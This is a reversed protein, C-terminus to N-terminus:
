EILEKGRGILAAAAGDSGLTGATKLNGTRVSLDFLGAILQNIKSNSHSRSRTVAFGLM